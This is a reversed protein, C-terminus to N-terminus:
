RGGQGGGQISSTNRVQKAKWVLVVSCYVPKNDTIVERPCWRSSKVTIQSRTYACRMNKATIKVTRENRRCIRGPGNDTGDKRFISCIVEQRSIPVISVLMRWVRESDALREPSRRRRLKGAM